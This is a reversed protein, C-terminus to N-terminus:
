KTLDSIFLLKKQSVFPIKCKSFTKLYETSVRINGRIDVRFNMFQYLFQSAADSKIIRFCKTAGANCLDILESM